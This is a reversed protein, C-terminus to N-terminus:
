GRERGESGEYGHAVGWALGGLARPAHEAQEKEVEQDDEDGNVVLSSPDFPDVLESVGAAQKGMRRSRSHRHNRAPKGEPTSTAANGDTKLNEEKSQAHPREAHWPIPSISHLPDTPQRTGTIAPAAQLHQLDQARQEAEEKQQKTKRAARANRKLEDAYSTVNLFQRLHTAYRRDVEAAPLALVRNRQQIEACVQDRAPDDKWSAPHALAISVIQLPYGTITLRAYCHMSPQSLIHKVTVKEQLEAEMVTADAASIRFVCLQQCNSLVMELLGDRIKNLRKLNQTALLMACGYKADESLLKDFDSGSFNQFEDIAVFVKRREALPLPQQLRFSRHLLNILTSGLINVANDDMDKASLACLVIKGETVAQHIPAKTLPQGVIRRLQMTDNFVGIKSIIPMIVEDKFAAKLSFYTKQWFTLLEQHWTERMDLESLVDTAYEKYQLLPNIDLLTYQEEARGAQVRQENLTYLLLCVANLFYAMRPGWQEAWIRQFCSMLNSVAQDRSFGMTADLPNLAVPYHTDTMDLLVVDQIRTPPVLKLIDMILDHHPDAVFVGPQPTTTRWHERIPQMAAGTLLQILVSKGSRSMGVFCKHSFLADFPLYVPVQYRRHTSTGMLAPPLPAPIQTIQHAIEPSALVGKLSIRRVLPLDATEQPLHFLGSAELANLIQWSYAGRHLLRLMRHAYPFAYRAQTLRHVQKEHQKDAPLFRKRKLALSNSSALTYQRYVVEMASLHATLQEQTSTNEQGIVIVRLQSYFGARAMKDAVLKMDYVPTPKRSIKWLFFALFGIVLASGLLTLQLLAHSSYWRYAFLSGVGTALLVLLRTGETVDSQVTAQKLSAAQQDREPQLAHEVSKRIDAALWREPARVLALQAIIRTGQGVSEMSALLGALPDAGPEALAKGTFTKLPLYRPQTLTFEGIVAQEGPHLLLPDAYPAIRQIEAQPYQAELQKCLLTCQTESSARLVFGQERRTGVLELAFPEDSSCAQFWNEMAQAEREGEDSPVILALFHGGLIGSQGQSPVFWLRL